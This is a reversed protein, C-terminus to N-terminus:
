QPALGWDSPALHKCLYGSLFVTLFDFGRLAGGLCLAVNQPLSGQLVNAYAVTSGQMVFPMWQPIGGFTAANNLFYYQLVFYNLGDHGRAMRHSMSLSALLLFELLVSILFLLLDSSPLFKKMRNM